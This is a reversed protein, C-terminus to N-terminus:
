TRRHPTPPSQGTLRANEAMRDLRERRGPPFTIITIILAFAAAGILIWRLNHSKAPEDSSESATGPKPTAAAPPTAGAQKSPVPVQYVVSDAGEIGALVTDSTQGVAVSEGQAASVTASALLTPTEGWAITSVGTNTRLVVRQGDPLFTGDTFVGAPAPALKTLKNTGQRSPSPPAAYIAGGKTSKTVIFLQNTGPEVLLTEADHAGDPYTFDYRHYPVNGADGLKDPEPITYIEIMDRTAKNDGIDAIYITGDRDVGVAEVDRVEAKFTLVMQVKGTTDVGFVRARDGSDNVTWYIGEYKQSKALGSSEAIREDRITFLKKVGPTPDAAPLLVGSQSSSASRAARPAALAASASQPSASQPSAASAGAPVATGALSFFGAALLALGTRVRM